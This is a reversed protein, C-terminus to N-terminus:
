LSLRGKTEELVKPGTCNFRTKPFETNSGDPSCFLSFLIDALIYRVSREYLSLKGVMEVREEVIGLVVGVGVRSEVVVDM